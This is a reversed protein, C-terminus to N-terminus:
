IRRVKEDAEETAECSEGAAYTAKELHMVAKTLSSRKEGRSVKAAELVEKQAVTTAVEAELVEKKAKKLAVKAEKLEKKIKEKVVM